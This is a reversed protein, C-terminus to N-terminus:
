ERSRHQQAIIAGRRAQERASRRPSPTSPTPPEDPGDGGIPGAARGTTGAAVPAPAAPRQVVARVREGVAQAAAGGGRALTEGTSRVPDVVSRRYLVRATASTAAMAGGVFPTVLATLQGSNAIISMTVFPAAILTVAMVLNMVTFVLYIGAASVNTASLDSLEQSFQASMGLLLYMFLAEIIPWALVAATFVAWGRLISLTQSVAMPIAVTGVVLATTYGVAQAIQFFLQVSVVLVFSVFFLFFAIGRPVNGALDGLLDLTSMQSRAAAQRQNLEDLVAGLEQLARGISGNHRSWGYLVNFFDTVLGALMFYLALVVGWILLSRVAAAYRGQGDLAGLSSNMLRILVAILLLVGSLVSLYATAISYAGDYIYSPSFSTLFRELLGLVGDM